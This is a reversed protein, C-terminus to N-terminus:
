DFPFKCKTKNHRRRQNNKKQQSSDRNWSQNYTGQLPNLSQNYLPQLQQHMAMRGLPHQLHMPLMPHHSRQQRYLHPQAAFFAGGGNPSPPPPPYYYCGRVSFQPQHQPPYYYPSPTMAHGVFLQNTPAGGGNNHLHMNNGRNNNNNNNPTTNFSMTSAQSWKEIECNWMRMATQGRNYLLSYPARKQKVKTYPHACKVSKTWKRKNNNAANNDAYVRVNM